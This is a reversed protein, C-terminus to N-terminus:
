PLFGASSSSSLLVSPDGYGSGVCLSATWFPRCWAGAAGWGRGEPRQEGRGGGGGQRHRSILTLGTPGEAAAPVGGGTDGGAMDRRSEAGRREGGRWSEPSHGPRGKGGSSLVGTAWPKM